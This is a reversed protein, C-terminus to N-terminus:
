SFKDTKDGAFVDQDRKSHMRINIVTEPSLSNATQCIKDVLTMIDTYPGELVTEFPTVQHKIGSEQILKICTDIIPYCADANLIPIVQIGLNVQKM